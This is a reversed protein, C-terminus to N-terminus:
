EELAIDNENLYDVIENILNQIVRKLEETAMHNDSIVGECLKKFSPFNIPLSMAKQTVTVSSLYYAKNIVGLFSIMKTFLNFSNYIVQERTGTSAISIFKNCEEFIEEVFMEKIFPRFDKQITEDFLQKYSDFLKSEDYIPLATVFKGVLLPWRMHISSIKSHVVDQSFIDVGYKLGHKIGQMEDAINEGKVVAVMDIDSYDTDENRSMSGFFAVALLDEKYKNKLKELIVQSLNIREEHSHKIPYTM